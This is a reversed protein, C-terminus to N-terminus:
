LNGKVYDDLSAFVTRFSTMHAREKSVMRNNIRSGLM